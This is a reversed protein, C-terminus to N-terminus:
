QKLKKQELNCHSIILINNNKNNPFIKFIKNLMINVDKTIKTQQIVIVIYHLKQFFSSYHKNIKLVDNSMITDLCGITDVFRLMIYDDDDFDTSFSNTKERKIEEEDKNNNLDNKLINDKNIEKKDVTSIIEKEEVNLLNNYDDITLTDIKKIFSDYVDCSSTNSVFLNGKLDVVNEGLMCNIFSSKGSGTKGLVIVNKFNDYDYYNNLLSLKNLKFNNLETIEKRLQKEIEKKGV